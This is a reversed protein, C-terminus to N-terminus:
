RHCQPPNTFTLCLFWFEWISEWSYAFLVKSCGKRVSGSTHQGLRCDSATEMPAAATRGSSQFLAGTWCSAGALNMSEASASLCCILLWKIRLINWKRYTQKCIQSCGVPTKFTLVMKWASRRRAPSSLFNSVNSPPTNNNDAETWHAAAAGTLAQSRRM